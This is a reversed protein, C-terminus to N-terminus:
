HSSGFSHPKIPLFYYSCSKPSDKPTVSGLSIMILATLSLLILSPILMFSAVEPAYHRNRVFAKKLFNMDVAHYILNKVM